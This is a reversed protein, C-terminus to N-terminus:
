EGTPGFRVSWRAPTKGLAVSLVWAGNAGQRLPAARANVRAARPVTGAAAIVVFGSEGRPRHVEGRLEGAAEDWAVGRLETGCSQHFSTGVVWPHPRPRRLCLLRAGPGFFSLDLAGPADGTLLDQYDGPHLYGGPNARKGPVTGLFQGSWFEYGWRRVGEPLGLRSFPIVYRSIEPKAASSGAAYCFIGVLDWEDWEARARLHWVSGAPHEQRPTDATGKGRCTGEYDFPLAGLPEFLDVPRASQGLPPLTATLVAWRDEPLTTLTDSIDIQGGALFAMTARLRADELTGPGGVCLCSPQVIGWRGNKWLHCAVAEHNAQQFSHGIFGTNGTDNCTYLLPWQGTGPAEPGGCNLILAEPLAQRIITAGLRAAETGGGAAMGDDHRRRALPHAACGIFDNKLYRVGREALSAMRAQLWQQAGPHTLDLIFVKGHPEWFWEWYPAPKGDPGPVLYEPHEQALPDFESITYPAKWVGLDLGLEALRDALWELGHPFRENEAFASPLNGQEWGLDVEMIKFGLPKLRQAALRANEIVREETVGLRYPYWSCWSVPPRSPFAPPHLARAADAYTELLTWPDEGALVLVEELSVRTGGRLRVEAGDFGIRWRRVEGAPTSELEIRGQWREATLFGALLAMRAEQDYAVWVLDSAGTATAPAENPEAAGSPPATAAVEALRRTRGGYGGQQEMLRVRTPLTGFAVAGSVTALLCVDNLIVDGDVAIALTSRLRLGRDHWPEVAIALATGGAFEYALEITAGDAGEAAQCALPALEAGDLRLSPSLRELRLGQWRPCSLSVQGAALRDVELEFPGAHM